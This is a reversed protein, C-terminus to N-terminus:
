QHLTHVSLPVTGQDKLQFLRSKFATHNARYHNNNYCGYYVYYSTILKVQQLVYIGGTKIEDDSQVPVYDQGNLIGVWM